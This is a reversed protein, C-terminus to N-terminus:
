NKSELIHLRYRELADEMAISTSMLKQIMGLSRLTAYEGLAASAKIRLETDLDKNNAVEEFYREPSETYNEPNPMKNALLYEYFQNTLSKKEIITYILWGWLSRVAWLIFFAIQLAIYGFILGLWGSKLWLSIAVIVIADPVSAILFNLLINRKFRSGFQM